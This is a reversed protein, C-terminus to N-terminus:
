VTQPRPRDVAWAVATVLLYVALASAGTAIPDDEAPIFMAAIQLALLVLLFVVAPWPSQGLSNRRAGWFVAVLALLGIEVAQEAVEYNWMGLGVKPGGFWLALDPRHVLLDLIWHSFVAAGILVASMNSLRFAFRFILWAAVSWILAAPLSHTWPMHELVLHSGPLDTDISVRELGTMVFVSWAVDVLQCGLALAWLPTSPSASKAAIAASYHGVFM